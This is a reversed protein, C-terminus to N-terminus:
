CGVRTWGCCTPRGGARRKKLRPWDRALWRRIAEPDRERAQRRPKQPTFGRRRLWTTLYEPRFRVGWEREILRALRPATWLETAFGHDTPNDALWRRVVKEQTATLKPPRGSAPRAALGAAGQTRFAAHWRRVSRPDVGLFEAIEAISFGDVL